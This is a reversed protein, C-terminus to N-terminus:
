GEVRAILVSSAIVTAFVDNWDDETVRGSGHQISDLRTAKETLRKLMALLEPAAAVLAANGDAGDRMVCVIGGDDPGPSFEPDNMPFHGFTVFRQDHFPHQGKFEPDAQVIWPAPSFNKM